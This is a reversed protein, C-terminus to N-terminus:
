ADQPLWLSLSHTKQEQYVGQEGDGSASAMNASGDSCASPEQCHVHDRFAAREGGEPLTLLCAAAQGDGRCSTRM